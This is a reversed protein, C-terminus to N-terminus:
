QNLQKVVEKAAAETSQPNQGTILRGDVEVHESWNAGSQVTAGLETLRSELLFPMHEDLGTEAEEADTFASVRRGKM